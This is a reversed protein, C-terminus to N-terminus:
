RKTNEFKITGIPKDNDIEPSTSIIEHFSVVFIHHSRIFWCDFWTKIVKNPSSIVRFSRESSLLVLPCENFVGTVSVRTKVSLYRATYLNPIDKM